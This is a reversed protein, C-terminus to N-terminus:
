CWRTVCIPAVSVKFHSFNRQEHLVEIWAYEHREMVMASVKFLDDVVRAYFDVYSHLEWVKCQCHFECWSIYHNIASKIDVLPDPMTLPLIFHLFAKPHYLSMSFETGLNRQRELSKSSQGLLFGFTQIVENTTLAMKLVLSLVFSIQLPFEDFYPYVSMKGSSSRFLKNPLNRLQVAYISCTMRACFPSCITQIHNLHMFNKDTEIIYLTSCKWICIRAIRCSLRCDNEFAFMFLTSTMWRFRARSSEAQKRVSPNKDRWKHSSTECKYRKM